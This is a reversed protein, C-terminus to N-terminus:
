AMADGSMSAHTRAFPRTTKENSPGVFPVSSSTCSGSSHHLESVLWYGVAPPDLTGSDSGFRFRRTAYRGGTVENESFWAMGLLNFRRAQAVALRLAAANGQGTNEGFTHLKLRHGSALSSLYKVPSWYRVDAREDQTADADLWTTTVVVGPNNLAQIQRAFDFGRSIEGNIEASSSGDVNGAVAEDLQGPRIGWSPYLMMLSGSFSKRVTSIQWNQYDVLADM